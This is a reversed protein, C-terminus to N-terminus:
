RVLILPIKLNVPNDYQVSGSWSSAITCDNCHSTDGIKLVVRRHSKKYMKKM